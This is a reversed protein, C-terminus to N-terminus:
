ANRRSRLRRAVGLGVLGLGMLVISAPEPVAVASSSVNGSITATFSNITSGVVSVPPTVNTLSFAAASPPTLQSAPILSSTLSLVDPPSGIALTLASGVGLAADTFTGSLFNTGTGGLGSTLSFSGDYHQVAGTGVAVAADISTASISFFAPGLVGGLNQAINVAINAGAITTATDGANATATVTNVGSTQAVQIIPVAYAPSALALLATTTILLRHM